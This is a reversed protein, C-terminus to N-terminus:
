KSLFNELPQCRAYQGHRPSEHAEQTASSGPVDEPAGPPHEGTDKSRIWKKLVKEDDVFIMLYWGSPSLGELSLNPCSVHIIDIPLKNEEIKERASHVSEGIAIKKHINILEYNEYKTMSHYLWSCIIVVVFISFGNKRNLNM